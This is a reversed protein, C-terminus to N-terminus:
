EIWEALRPVWRFITKTVSIALMMTTPSPIAAPGRSRLMLWSSAVACSTRFAPFGTLQVLLSLATMWYLARLAAGGQTPAADFSGEDIRLAATVTRYRIEVIMLAHRSKTQAEAYCPPGPLM